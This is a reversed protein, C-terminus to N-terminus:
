YDPTCTHSLVFDEHITGGTGGAQANCIPQLFPVFKFNQFDGLCVALIDVGPCRDDILAVEREEAQRVIRGALDHRQQALIHANEIGACRVACGGAPEVAQGLEVAGALRQFGGGAHSHRAAVGGPKDRRHGRQHLQPDEGLGGMQTHRTQGAVGAAAFLHNSFVLTLARVFRQVGRTGVAQRQVM